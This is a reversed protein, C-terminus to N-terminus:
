YEMESAALMVAALGHPVNDRVYIYKCDLSPSPCGAPAPPAGSTLDTRFDANTYANYNGGVSMGVVTGHVAVTGDSLIDVKSKVGTWGKSAVALYSGPLYGLRVSKAVSYVFIASASTEQWNPLAPVSEGPYGGNQPLPGNMVDIVQYWLGTSPDQFRALGEAITKVIQILVPRDPHDRPLYELADVIGALYWAISRSWLVPSVRTGALPPVKGKTPDLGLWVHDAAGNWAHYYLHKRADFTVASLLKIQLAATDFCDQADGPIAQDAYLAGYRVLFPESM